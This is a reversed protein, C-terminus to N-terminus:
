SGWSAAVLPMRAMPLTRWVLASDVDVGVPVVVGVAPVHVLAVPSVLVVVVVVPFVMRAVLKCSTNV